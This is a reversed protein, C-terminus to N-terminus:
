RLNKIRFALLFGSILILFTGPASVKTAVSFNDFYGNGNSDTDEISFDTFPTDTVFGFFSNKVEDGWRYGTAPVDFVISQSGITLKYRQDTSFGSWIDFAIASVAKDLTFSAHSNGYGFVLSSTRDVGLTFGMAMTYHIPRLIYSGRDLDSTLFALTNKPADNFDDLLTLQGALTNFRNIDNTVMIAATSSFSMLFFLALIAKM